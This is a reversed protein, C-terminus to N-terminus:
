RKRRALLWKLLAIFSESSALSERLAARSVPQGFGHRVEEIASLLGETGEIAGGGGARIARLPLWEVDDRL